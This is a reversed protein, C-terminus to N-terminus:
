ALIAYEADWKLLRVTLRYEQACACMARRVHCYAGSAGGGARAGRQHLRAECVATEGASNSVSLNVSYVGEFQCAYSVQNSGRGQVDITGNNQFDWRYYLNHLNAGAVESFFNVPQGIGALQPWASLNYWLRYNRCATSVFRPDNSTNGAGPLLPYTGCHSLAM